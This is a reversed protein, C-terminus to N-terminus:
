RVDWAFVHAKEAGWTKECVLRVASTKVNLPVRVLRQYNNDQRFIETWKGQREEAEIRFARTMCEPVTMPEM